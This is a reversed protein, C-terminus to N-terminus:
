ALQPEDGGVGELLVELKLIHSHGRGPLPLRAAATNPGRPPENTVALGCRCLGNVRARGRKFGCFFVLCRLARAANQFKLIENVPPNELANQTPLCFLASFDSSVVKVRESQCIMSSHHM